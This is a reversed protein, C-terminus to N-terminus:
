VSKSGEIKFNMNIISINWINKSIFILTILIINLIGLRNVEIYIMGVIPFIYLIIHSIIVRYDKWKVALALFSILWYGGCILPFYEYEFYYGVLTAIFPLRWIVKVKQKTYPYIKLLIVQTFLIGFFGVLLAKLISLFLVATISDTVYLVEAVTLSILYIVGLLM